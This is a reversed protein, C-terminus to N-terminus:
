KLYVKEKKNNRNRYKIMIGDGEWKKIKYEFPIKRREETFSDYLLLLTEDDVSWEGGLKAYNNRDHYFTGDLRFKLTEGLEFYPRRSKVERVTWKNKSSVLKELKGPKQAMSPAALVVLILLLAIKKM